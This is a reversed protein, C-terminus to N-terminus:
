SYKQIAVLPPAVQGVPQPVVGLRLGNKGDEDVRLVVKGHQDLWGWFSRARASDGGFRTALADMYPILGVLDNQSVKASSHTLVLVVLVVVLLSAVIVLAVLGVRPRWCTADSAEVEVMLALLDDRWPAISISNVMVSAVSSTLVNVLAETANSQDKFWTQQYEAAFDGSRFITYRGLASSLIYELYASGPPLYPLLQTTSFFYDAQILGHWKATPTRFLLDTDYEGKLTSAYDHVDSANTVLALEFSKQMLDIDWSRRSGPDSTNLLVAVSNFKRFAVKTAISEGPEWYTVNESRSLIGNQRGVALNFSCIYQFERTIQVDGVEIASGIETRRLLAPICLKTSTFEDAEEGTCAKLAADDIFSSTGNRIGWSNIVIQPAVVNAVKSVSLDSENDVEYYLPSNPAQTWNKAKLFDERLRVTTNYLSAKFEPPGSYNMATENWTKLLRLFTFPGLSSSYIGTWACGVSSRYVTRPISNTKWNRHDVPVGVVTDAVGPGNQYWALGKGVKGSEIDAILIGAAIELITRNGKTTINEPNGYTGYVGNYVVASPVIEASGSSAFQGTANTPGPVFMPFPDDSCALVWSNAFTLNVVNLCQVVKGGTVALPDCNLPPECFGESHLQQLSPSLTLFVTGKCTSFDSIGLDFLLSWLLPSFLAFCILVLRFGMQQPARQSPSHGVNKLKVIAYSILSWSASDGGSIRNLLDYEAATATKPAASFLFSVLIKGVAFAAFTGFVRWVLLSVALNLPIEVAM